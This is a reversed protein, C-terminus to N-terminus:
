MFQRKYVDLHTYSVSGLYQRLDWYALNHRCQHRPKSVNSIEYQYLGAEALMRLASEYMLRDLEPATEQMYGQRKYVDLHTYSVPADDQRAARLDFAAFGFHILQDDGDTSRGTTCLSRQLYQLLKRSIRRADDYRLVHRLAESTHVGLPEITEALHLDFFSDVTIDDFAAAYQDRRAAIPVHLDDLKATVVGDIKELRLFDVSM